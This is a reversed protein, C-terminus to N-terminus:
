RRRGAEHGKRALERLFAGGFAQSAREAWEPTAGIGQVFLTVSVLSAPGPEDRAAGTARVKGRGPLARTAADLARQTAKELTRPPVDDPVEFALRASFKAGREANWWRHVLGHRVGLQSTAPPTWEFSGDRRVMARGANPFEDEYTPTVRRWSAQSWRSLGLVIGGIVLLYGGVDRTPALDLFGLLVLALGLLLGFFAVRAVLDPWLRVLESSAVSGDVTGSLPVRSTM